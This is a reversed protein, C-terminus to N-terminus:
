FTAYISGRNIGMIEVLDQMSTGEFGFRLFAEMAKELVEEKEFEKQRAM